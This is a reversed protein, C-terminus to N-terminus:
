LMKYKKNNDNQNLFTVVKELNINPDNLFLVKFEVNDDLDKKLKNKILDVDKTQNIYDVIEGFKNNQNKM